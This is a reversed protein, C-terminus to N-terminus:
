INEMHKIPNTYKPFKRNMDKNKNEQTNVSAQIRKSTDPLPPRRQKAPNQSETQCPEPLRGYPHLVQFAKGPVHYGSGKLHSLTLEAFIRSPQRLGTEAEELNWTPILDTTPLPHDM